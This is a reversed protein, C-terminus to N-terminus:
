IPEYKDIHRFFFIGLKTELETQALSDSNPLAKLSAQAWSFAYKGGCWLKKLLLKKVIHIPLASRM